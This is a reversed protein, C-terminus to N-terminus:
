NQLTQTTIGTSSDIEAATKRNLTSMRKHPFMRIAARMAAEYPPRM